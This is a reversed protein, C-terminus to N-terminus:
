TKYQGVEEDVHDDDHRRHYRGGGNGDTSGSTQCRLPRILDIAIKSIFVVLLGWLLSTITHQSDELTTLKQHILGIAQDHANLSVNQLVQQSELKELRDRHDQLRLNDSLVTDHLNRGDILQQQQEQGCTAETAIGYFLMCSLSALILWDCLIVIKSRRAHLRVALDEILVRMSAGGPYNSTKVRWRGKSLHMIGNRTIRM